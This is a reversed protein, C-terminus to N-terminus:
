DTVMKSMPLAGSVTEFAVTVPSKEIWFLQVVTLGAPPVHVISTVKEGMLVAVSFPVRVIM